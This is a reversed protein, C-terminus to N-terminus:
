KWEWSKPANMKVAKAGKLYQKENPDLAKWGRKLIPRQQGTYHALEVIIDHLEQNQERLVICEKTIEELSGCVAVVVSYKEELELIRKVLEAQYENVVIDKQKGAM